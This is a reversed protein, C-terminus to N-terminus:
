YTRNEFIGFRNYYIHVRQMVSDISRLAFNKGIKFKYNISTKVKRKGSKTEDFYCWWKARATFLQLLLM